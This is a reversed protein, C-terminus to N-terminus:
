RKVGLNLLGCKLEAERETSFWTKGLESYDLAGEGCCELIQEPGVREGRTWYLTAGTEDILIETVEAPEVFYKNITGEPEYTVFYITDGIRPLGTYDDESAANLKTDLYVRVYKSSGRNAYKGSESLINLRPIAALFIRFEEVEEPEGEVRLKIM